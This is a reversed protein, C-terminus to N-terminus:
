QSGDQQSDTECCRVQQQELGSAGLRHHSELIPPNRRRCGSHRYREVGFESVQHVHKGIFGLLTAEFSQSISLLNTKGKFFYVYMRYNYNYEGAVPYLDNWSLDLFDMTTNSALYKGLNKGTGVGLNNHSLNLKQILQNEKMAELLNLVGEDGLSNFSLDLERLCQNLSLGEMINYIGEPGIRCERMNLIKVKNNERLMEGIWFVADPTMWNDELIMHEVRNNIMMTSCIAKTQNFSLGYYKLNLTDTPLSRLVRTIPVINIEICLNRYKECGIDDYTPEPEVYNFAEDIGPDVLPPFHYLIHRLLSSRSILIQALCMFSKTNKDFLDQLTEEDFDEEELAYDYEDEEGDGDDDVVEEEEEEEEGEDDDCSTTLSREDDAQYNANESEQM